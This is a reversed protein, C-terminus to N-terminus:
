RPRAPFIVPNSPVADTAMVPLQLNLLYVGDPVADDVYIM